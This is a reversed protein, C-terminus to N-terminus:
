RSCGAAAFNSKEVARKSCVEAARFTGTERKAAVVALVMLVRRNSSTRLTARM